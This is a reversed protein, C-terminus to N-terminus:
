QWRWPFARQSRSRLWRGPVRRPLPRRGLWAFLGGGTSRVLALKVDRVAPMSRSVRRLESRAEFKAPSRKQKALPPRCGLSSSIRSRRGPSRTSIATIRTSFATAISSRRPGTAVRRCSGGGRDLIEPVGIDLFYGDRFARVAQGGGRAASLCQGRDLVASARRHRLALLAEGTSFRSRYPARSRASVHARAASSSASKACRIPGSRVM